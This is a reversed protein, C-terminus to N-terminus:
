LCWWCTNANALRKAHSVLRIFLEKEHKALMDAGDIFLTPIKGRKAVYKEATKELVEVVDKLALIRNEPLCHYHVYESSIYGLALDFANSPETKMGIEKALDFPFASSEGVELYLVGPLKSCLYTMLVSKGTGSPGVIIGFLPANGESGTNKLKPFLLNVIEKYVSERHIMRDLNSVPVFPKSGIKM